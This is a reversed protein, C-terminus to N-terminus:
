TNRARTMGGTGTAPLVSVVRGGEIRVLWMGDALGEPVAAGQPAGAAATACGCGPRCGGACTSSALSAADANRGEREVIKLGLAVARDRAAPTLLVGPGLVIPATVRGQLLDQATIVREIM